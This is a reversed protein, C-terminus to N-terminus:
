FYQFFIQKKELSKKETKKRKSTFYQVRLKNTHTHTYHPKHKTNAVRTHM